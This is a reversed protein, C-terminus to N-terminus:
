FRKCSVFSELDPFCSLFNIFITIFFYMHYLWVQEELLQALSELSGQMLSLSDRYEVLGVDLSLLKEMTKPIIKM